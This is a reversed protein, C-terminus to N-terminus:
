RTVVAEVGRKERPIGGVVPPGIDPDRAGAHEAAECARRPLRPALVGNEELGDAARHRRPEPRALPAPREGLGALPLRQDGAEDIEEVAVRVSPPGLLVEDHAPEVGRRNPPREPPVEAHREEIHRPKAPQAAAHIPECGAGLDDLCLEVRPELGRATKPGGEGPEDAMRRATGAPALHELGIPDVRGDSGHHRDRISLDEVQQLEEVAAGQRALHFRELCAQARGDPDSANRRDVLDFPLERGEEGSGRRAERRGQDPRSRGERNADPVGQPGDWEPLGAAVRGDRAVDPLRRGDTRDRPGISGISDRDSDRAM